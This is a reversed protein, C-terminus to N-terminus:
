LRSSVIGLAFFVFLSVERRSDAERLKAGTKRQELRERQIKM